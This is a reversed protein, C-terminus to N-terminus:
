EVIKWTMNNGDYIVEVTYTFEGNPETTELVGNYENGSKKTLILSKIKISNSKFQESEKMNKEVEKALDNTSLSCSTILVAAILMSCFITILKKMKKSKFKRSMQSKPTAGNKIHYSTEV